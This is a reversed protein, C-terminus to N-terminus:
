IRILTYMSLFIGSVIVTCITFLNLVTFINSIISSKRAGWAVLVTFICFLIIYNKCFFVFTTRINKAYFIRIYYAISNRWVMISISYMKGVVITLEFLNNFYYLLIFTKILDIFTVFVHQIKSLKSSKFM